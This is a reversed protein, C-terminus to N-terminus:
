SCFRNRRTPIVVLPLLFLIRILVLITSHTTLANSPVVVLPLVVSSRIRVDVAVTVADSPCCSTRTSSCASMLVFGVM